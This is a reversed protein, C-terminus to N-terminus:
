MVRSRDHRVDGDAPGEPEKASGNGADRCGMGGNVANRDGAHAVHARTRYMAYPCDYFAIRMVSDIAYFLWPALRM